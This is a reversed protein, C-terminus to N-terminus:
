KRWLLWLNRIKVPLDLLGNVMLIITLTIGLVLAVGALPHQLEATLYRRHRPTLSFGRTHHVAIPTLNAHRNGIRM